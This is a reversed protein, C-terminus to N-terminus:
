TTVIIRDKWGRAEANEFATMKQLEEPFAGNNRADRLFEYAM